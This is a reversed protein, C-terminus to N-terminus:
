GASETVDRSDSDDNGPFYDSHAPERILVRGNGDPCPESLGHWRPDLANAWPVIAIRKRDAWLPQWNTAPFVCHGASAASVAVRNRRNHAVSSNNV